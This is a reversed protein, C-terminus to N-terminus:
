TNTSVMKTSAAYNCLVFAISHPLAEHDSLESNIQARSEEVTFKCSQHKVTALPCRKHANNRVLELWKVHDSM